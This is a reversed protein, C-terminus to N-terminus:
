ETCELQHSGGCFFFSSLFPSAPIAPWLTFRLITTQLHVCSKSLSFPGSSRLVTICCVTGFPTRTGCKWMINTFFFFRRRGSSKLKQTPAPLVKGGCNRLKERQYRCTQSATTSRFPRCWKWTLMMMTEPLPHLQAAEDSFAACVPRMFLSHLSTFYIGATMATEKVSM